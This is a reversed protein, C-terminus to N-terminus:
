EQGPADVEEGLRDLNANLRLLLDMLQEVEQAKFGALAETTRAQMMAKAKPLRKAAAPTLLILRSRKDAPDPVREVLGDREMRNLLQAMSPQEVQAYRALETQSLARGGKLAMLVPVQGMAFGLERLDADAIRMFGRAARGVLKMMSSPPPDKDAM